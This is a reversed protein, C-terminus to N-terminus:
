IKAKANLAFIKATTMRTKKRKKKRTWNEPFVALLKKALTKPNTILSDHSWYRVLEKSM